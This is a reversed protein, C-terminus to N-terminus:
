PRRPLWIASAFSDRDTSLFTLDLQAPASPVTLRAKLPTNDPALSTEVRGILEGSQRVEAILRGSDGTTRAYEVTDTAGAYQWALTSGNVLGRLEVGGPPPRTIGFMAWMLPYNPVLRSIADPPDTWLPHEGVVVASATGSGFPGAVDLRLSDPPAVRVSGRGGASGREDRLLWKFRHLQQHPPITSDVWAAVDDHSVPRAAEPIVPGPATRCGAAFGGLYVLLAGRDIRICQVM